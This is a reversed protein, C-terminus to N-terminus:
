SGRRDLDVREGDDVVGVGHEPADPEGRVPTVADRDDAPVACPLGTQQPTEGALLCRGAARDCEYLKRWDVIMLTRVYSAGDTGPTGWNAPVGHMCRRRSRWSM